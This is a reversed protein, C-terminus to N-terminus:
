PLNSAIYPEMEAIEKFLKYTRLKPKMNVDNLWNNQHLNNINSKVLLTSVPQKSEYFDLELQECLNKMDSSWNNVNCQLYDWNFICKTLRDERMNVLKNWYNLLCLYRSERPKLWGTDGYLAPVPTFRHVGLLFRM